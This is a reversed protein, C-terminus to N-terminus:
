TFCYIYLILKVFFIGKNYEHDFLACFLKFGISCVLHNESHSCGLIQVLGQLKNEGKILIEVVKTSIKPKKEFLFDNIKRINLFM